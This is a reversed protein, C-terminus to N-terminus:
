IKMRVVYAPKGGTAKREIEIRTSFIELLTEMEERKFGHSKSLKGMTLQGGHETLLSQLKRLRATHRNSREPALIALQEEAFWQIIEVAHRATRPKIDLLEDM